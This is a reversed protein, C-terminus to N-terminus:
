MVARCCVLDTPKINIQSCNITGVQFLESLLGMFKRSDLNAVDTQAARMRVLERERSQAFENAMDM